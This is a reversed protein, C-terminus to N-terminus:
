EIDADRFHLGHTFTESWTIGLGHIGDMDCDKLYAGTFDAHQLDCDRFNSAQCNAGTFNAYKMSADQFRANRAIVSTFNCKSATAGALDAGAMYASTFNCGNFQAQRLDANFLYASTFDAGNFVAQVGGAEGRLWAAHKGLIVQLQEHTYDSM